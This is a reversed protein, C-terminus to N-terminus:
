NEQDQVLTHTEPKPEEKKEDAKRKSTATKRDVFQYIIRGDARKHSVLGKLELIKEKETDYLVNTKSNLLKKDLAKTLMQFLSAQDVDTLSCRETEDQVFIRLRNLRLGRELRHWPRMYANESSTNLFNLLKSSQTQLNASFSPPTVVSPPDSSIPETDTTLPSPSNTRKRTKAINM